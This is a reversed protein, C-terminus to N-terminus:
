NSRLVIIERAVTQGARHYLLDASRVPPFQRKSYGLSVIQDIIGLREYQQGQRWAPLTMVVSTGPELQPRLNKLFALTLEAADRKLRELRSQTPPKSLPPGLYGETVVAGPPDWSSQTADLQNVRWEPVEHQGALWELNARAAKVMERAADSGTAPHGMLLAEQLVVGSGCFPDLIISGPAPNALNIMMQALKPPLMGVRAARAPRGYDRKSYADIDQVQESLAVVLESGTATVLVELGKDLLRNHSIQAATLATARNPVTRVAARGKLQSKLELGLRNLRTPTMGPGYWSIGIPTKSGGLRETIAPHWALTEALNVSLPLRGIVVGVKLTGGLRPLEIETGVLATERGLRSVKRGYRAILEALSLEPLRGLM